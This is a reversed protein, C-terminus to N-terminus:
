KNVPPQPHLYDDDIFIIINSLCEGLYKAREERREKALKHREGAKKVESCLSFSLTLLDEPKGEM